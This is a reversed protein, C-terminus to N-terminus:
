EEARDKMLIFYKYIDMDNGNGHTVFLKLNTSCIPHLEATSLAHPMCLARPAM